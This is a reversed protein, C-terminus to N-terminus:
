KKKKKRKTQCKKVKKEEEVDGKACFAQRKAGEVGECSIKTFGEKCRIEKKPEAMLNSSMLLFGLLIMTKKM